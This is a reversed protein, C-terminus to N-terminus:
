RPATDREGLTAHLALVRRASNTTARATLTAGTVGKIGRKLNLNADLKRGIFQAYWSARPLYDSPEAFALIELRQIKGELDVVFMLTERLSRVRHTDFYATGIRKGDKRAVYPRAIAVETEFGALEDTRKVEGKSLYITEKAVECGPFALKLAEPVTLFVKGGPGSSSRALPSFVAVILILLSLRKM